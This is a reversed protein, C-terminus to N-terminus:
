NSKVCNLVTTQLFDHNLVSACKTSRFQETTPTSIAWGNNRCFFIVPAETVAAFNLAAHFDGQVNEDTLFAM